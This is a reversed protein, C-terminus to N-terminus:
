EAARYELNPTGAAAAFYVVDGAGAMSVREYILTWVKSPLVVQGAADSATGFTGDATDNLYAYVARVNGLITLSSASAATTLAIKGTGQVSLTATAM